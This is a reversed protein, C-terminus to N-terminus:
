SLNLLFRFAPRLAVNGNSHTKVNSHILEYSEDDLIWERDRKKRYLTECNAINVEKQQDSSDLIKQKKYRQLGFSLYSSKYIIKHM